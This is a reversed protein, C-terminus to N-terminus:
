AEPSDEEEEGEPAEPLPAMITMTYSVSGAPDEVPICVHFSAAGSPVTGSDGSAAEMVNGDGDNWVPYSDPHDSEYSWKWGTVDALDHTDSDCFIALRGATGEYVYPEPLEELPAEDMTPTTDAPEPDDEDICGAMATTALAALLLLTTAIRM